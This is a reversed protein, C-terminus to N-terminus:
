TTRAGVGTELRDLTDSTDDDDGNRRIGAGLAKEKEEPVPMRPFPNGYTETQPRYATLNAFVVTFKVTDSNVPAGSPNKIAWTVTGQGFDYGEVYIKTPVEDSGITYSRPVEQKDRTKWLRLNDSHSLELRCGTMDTYLPNWSLLAPFLEDDM